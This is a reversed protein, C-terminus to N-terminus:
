AAIGLEQPSPHRYIAFSDPAGEPRPADADLRAGLRTALRKSRENGHDIHSVLGMLGLNRYCYDRAAHAAEYAIGRGEAEESLIWGFEIEPYFPPRNPGVTGCFLGTEREEIAWLGIGSLVWGAADFCFDRWAGSLDYPGGVFRARDSMLTRRHVAFDDNTPARLILRETEVVPIRM